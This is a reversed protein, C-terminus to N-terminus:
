TRPAARARAAPLRADHPQGERVRRDRSDAAPRASAEEGLAALLGASRFGDPGAYQQRTAYYSALNIAITTKGSGGKPNLVVIRQMTPRYIDPRTRLDIELRRVRAVLSCALDTRCVAVTLEFVGPTIRAETSNRGDHFAHQKEPILEVVDGRRADRRRSARHISSACTAVGSALWRAREDRHESSAASETSSSIKPARNGLDRAM